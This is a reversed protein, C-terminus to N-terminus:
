DSDNKLKTLRRSFFRPEWYTFDINKTCISYLLQNRHSNKTQYSIHLTLNLNSSCVCEEELPVLCALNPPIKLVVTIKKSMFCKQFMNWQEFPTIPVFTHLRIHQESYTTISFLLLELFDRLFPLLLIIKEM